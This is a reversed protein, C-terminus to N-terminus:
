GAILQIHLLSFYRMEGKDRDLAAIMWQPDRHWDNSGFILSVVDVDRISTIGQWNTYRFRLRQGSEFRAVDIHSEM